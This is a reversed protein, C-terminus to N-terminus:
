KIYINELSESQLWNRSPVFPNAVRTTWVYMWAIDFLPIEPLEDSITTEVDLLARNGEEESKAHYAWQDYLQDVKPNSYQTSNALKMGPQIWKSHHNQYSYVGLIWRKTLSMDFKYNAQLQLVTSFDAKKINVDIGVAGLYDRILDATKEEEAEGARVLLELGFRSGGNKRKYGAQDLLEETKKPRYEYLTVNPTGPLFEPAFPRNSTRCLNSTAKATIDKKDLAHAIAKRVLKNSLVPQKTNIMIHLKYNPKFAVLVNLDPNKDMSAYAEYPLGRYVFDAEGTTLAALLMSPERIFKIIIKDLYPKGPRWYNENRVLTVHSGRVWEKFKFPGTGVPARRFKDKLFNSGELLHKPFVTWDASALRSIMIGPAWAGPKMIVTTDDVIDVTTGKLYLGRNDYKPLLDQFSFKVDEVTLPKGDHWKVNKRLKFVFQKKEYDVEWSEALGPVIKMNEDTELLSNQINGALPAVNWAGNCSDLVSPESVLAMVLTGGRKPQDAAGSVSINVALLVSFLCLLSRCFIKKM